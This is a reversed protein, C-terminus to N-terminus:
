LYYCVFLEISNVSVQSKLSAWELVRAPFQGSFDMKWAVSVLLLNMLMYLIVNLTSECRVDAHVSPITRPKWLACFQDHQCKQVIIYKGVANWLHRNIAPTRHLVLVKWRGWIYLARARGEGVACPRLRCNLTASKIPRSIEFPLPLFSTPLM